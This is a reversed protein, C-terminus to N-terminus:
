QGLAKKEALKARARSTDGGMGKRVPNNGLRFPYLPCLPSTCNKVQDVSWCVCELCHARIASLPTLNVTKTGGKSNRIQHKIAM